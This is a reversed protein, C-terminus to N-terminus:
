DLFRVKTRTRVMRGLEEADWNTLRVCGHSANKDVKSPEPTGHIGYTPKTLAIFVSGVPNNPGPPINLRKTNSGQQFNKVPHYTYPPKWAIGKVRHEGSPSPVHQSGVTAPYAVLLTGDRDFGRLEGKQKDVEILDVKAQLRSREVNAVVIRTGPRSFDAQTNLARLLREDMHFREALMETMTQFNLRPLKALKGFDSPLDPTFRYAADQASIEYVTLVPGDGSKRLAEVFADDFAEPGELSRAARFAAVAKRFNEGDRGDIVGPSFHLRDLLIQIRVISASVSDVGSEPSLEAKEVAEPSLARDEQAARSPRAPGDNVSSRQALGDQAICAFLVFSLAYIPITRM